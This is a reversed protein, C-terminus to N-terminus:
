LMCIAWSFPTGEISEWAEARDTRETGGTRLPCHSHFATKNATAKKTAKSEGYISAARDRSDVGGKVALVVASVKMSEHLLVQCKFFEADLIWNANYEGRHVEKLM